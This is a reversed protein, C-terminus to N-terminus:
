RAFHVFVKLIGEGIQHIDAPTWHPHIQIQMAHNLIDRSRAQDFEAVIRGHGLIRSWGEVFHREPLSGSSSLLMAADVGEADLATVLDQIPLTKDVLYILALPVAGDPDHVPRLRLGSHHGIKTLLTAATSRLRGLLLPLKQLQVRGIAGELESMRLNCGFLRAPPVPCQTGVWFASPDHWFRAAQAFDVSDTALLGGEGTTMLKFHQFSFCGIQGLSGLPQSRYQGGVSQAADEVLLLDHRRALAILEHMACPAGRMHVALIARTRDSILQAAATTDLTLSDDIPCCVPTWGQDLCAAAVGIFCFAPIIIEDGTAHPIIAMACALASTGSNMAVAFPRNVTRAFAAEFDMVEQGWHRYFQRREMVRAVAAIEEEDMMAAGPAVVRLREVRARAPAGGQIALHPIAPKAAQATM